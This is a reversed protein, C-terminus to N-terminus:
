LSEIMQVQNFKMRVVYLLVSIRDQKLDIDVTFDTTYNIIISKNTDSVSVSDITVFGDPCLIEIIRVLGTLVAGNYRIYQIAKFLPFYINFSLPAFDNEGEALFLFENGYFDSYAKGQPPTDLIAEQRVNGNEDFVEDNRQKVTDSSIYGQIEETGVLSSRKSETALTNIDPLGTDDLVEQEFEFDETTPKFLGRESFEYQLTEDYESETMRTATIVESQPIRPLYIGAFRGLNYLTESDIRGEEFQMRAFNIFFQKEETSMENMMNQISQIYFGNLEGRLFRFFAKAM